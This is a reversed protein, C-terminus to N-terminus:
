YLVRRFAFEGAPRAAPMPRETREGTGEVGSRLYADAWGTIMFLLPMTQLGLFVTAISFAIAAYISALTFALSGGSTDVPQKM